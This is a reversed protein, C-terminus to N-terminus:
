RGNQKKDKNADIIMYLMLLGCGVCVCIDAVNFVPFVRFDFMDTVYGQAMRDTLNGAGGGCILSVSVLFIRNFAKSMVLVFIIGIGIVIAPFVILLTPHGQLMSFAAGTNQVYTIHFIQDIVPITDGPEMNTSVAMKVLRDLVMVAVIILLYIM